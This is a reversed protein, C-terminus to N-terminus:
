RRRSDRIPGPATAPGLEFDLSEQPTAFGTLSASLDVIGDFDTDAVAQSRYRGSVLRTTYSGDSLLAALGTARAPEITDPYFFVSGTGLPGGQWRARGKVLDGSFVSDPTFYTFAASRSRNGELDQVGPLVQVYVVAGSAITDGLSLLLSQWDPEWQRRFLTDYEEPVFVYDPVVATDVPESFRVAVTAARNLGSAGPVPTIRTITPAITDQKDSGRYRARFWAVNGAADWVVGQVQYLQVSQVPTWLLVSNAQRGQSAGRLRVGLGNADSVYFSDVVVRRGDIPEDFVLEVQSRNRTVVEELHPAFRDPSPPMMKKACVVAGLAALAVAAPLNFRLRCRGTV